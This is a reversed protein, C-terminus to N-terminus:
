QHAHALPRNIFGATLRTLPRPGHIAKLHRNVQRRTLQVVRLKSVFDLTRQALTVEIRCIYLQLKRLRHERAASVLHTFRKAPQM